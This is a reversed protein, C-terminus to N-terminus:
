GTHKSSHAELKLNGLLKEYNEQEAVKLVNPNLLM